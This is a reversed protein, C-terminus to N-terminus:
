DNEIRKIKKSEVHKIMAKAFAQDNADKSRHLADLHVWFVKLVLERVAEKSLQNVKKDYKGLTKYLKRRLTTRGRETGLIKKIISYPTDEFFLEYSYFLLIVLEIGSFVGSKPLNVSAEHIFRPLSPEPASMIKWSGNRFQIHQEDGNDQTSQPKATVGVWQETSTHPLNGLESSSATALEMKMPFSGTLRNQTLSSSVDVSSSPEHLLHHATQDVFHFDQVHPFLQSRNGFVDMIQASTVDDETFNLPPSTMTMDDYSRSYKSPRKEGTVDDAKRKDMVCPIVQQAPMSTM